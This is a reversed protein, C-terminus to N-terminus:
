EIDTLRSYVGIKKSLMIREIWRIANVPRMQGFGLSAAIPILM